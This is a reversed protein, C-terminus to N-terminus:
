EIVAHEIESLPIGLTAHTSVDFQLLGFKSRRRTTVGSDLMLGLDARAIEILDSRRNVWIAAGQSQRSRSFGLLEVLAGDNVGLEAVACVAGDSFEAISSNEQPELGECDSHLLSPLLATPIASIELQIVARSM